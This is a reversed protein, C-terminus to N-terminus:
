PPSQFAVGPTGKHVACCAPAARLWSPFGAVGLCTTAHEQGAGLAIRLQLVAGDRAGAEFGLDLGHLLGFPETICVGDRQGVM